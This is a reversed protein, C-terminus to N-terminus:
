PAAAMAACRSALAAVHRHEALAIGEEIAAEHIDEGPQRLIIVVTTTGPTVEIVAEAAAM